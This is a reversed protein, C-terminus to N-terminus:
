REVLEVRRNKARGEETRNSAVPALPGVGYAVLREEKIGYKEVLEKVVALARRKSLDLNYDLKGLNDTHGVVYLNIDPNEKLFKAIEQLVPESEPKIEAKDFDFYIGYISIHGHAKIQELMQASTLGTELARPEIIYLVTRPNDKRGAVALAMYLSKQPSVASLYYWPHLEPDEWSGWGRQNVQQFFGFLKRLKSQNKEERYSIDYGAQSLAQEYNKFIELTSRGQPGSYVYYFIRGEIKKIVNKSLMKEVMQWLAESKLNPWDVESIDGLPLYFEGFEVKEYSVLTSDRYRKLAPHDPINEYQAFTSSLSLAFLLLSILATKKVM